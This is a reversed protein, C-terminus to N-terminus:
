AMPAASRVMFMSPFRAHVGAESFGPLRDRVQPALPHLEDVHMDDDAGAEGPKMTAVSVGNLRTRSARRQDNTKSFRQAAREQKSIEAYVLM